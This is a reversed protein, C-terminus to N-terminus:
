KAKALVADIDPASGPAIRYRKAVAGEFVVLRLAGDAGVQWIGPTTPQEFDFIRATTPQGNLFVRAYPQPREKSRELSTWFVHKGDPTWSVYSTATGSTAVLLSKGDVFVETQKSGARIGTFAIHKGDPSFVYHKAALGWQRAWWERVDGANPVIFEGITIGAVEQGDMVLVLTPGFSGPVRKSGVFAYRSGDPSFSLSDPVVTKGDLAVPKGDVILFQNIGSGDGAVFGYRGGKPSVVVRNAPTGTLQAYGESPQGDVVVFNRGANNGVYVAKSSEPTFRTLEAVITQYDPGKKGDIVVFQARTTTNRCIAMYRKGDASFVVESPNLADPVEKGDLFLVSPDGAKRPQRVGAWRAGVPAAGITTRMEGATTGTTSGTVVGDPVTVISPVGAKLSTLLRNDALFAPEFGLYPVEKGDVVSFLQDAGAGIRGGVKVASYAWRSEDPSFLPQMAQNGSVPGPKGDMVLHARGNGDPGPKLDVFYIHKGAPSFRLPSYSLNTRTPLLESRYLEKGDVILLYENGVRAFYAHRTGDASFIVSNVVQGARGTTGLLEEFEPGEVGDLVVVSRTGKQTLVAYHVGNRSMGYAPTRPASRGVITEEAKHQAVLASTASFVAIM